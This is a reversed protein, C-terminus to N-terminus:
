GASGTAKRSRRSSAAQDALEPRGTDVACDYAFHPDHENLVAHLAALTRVAEGPELPGASVAAGAQAPGIGIATRLL